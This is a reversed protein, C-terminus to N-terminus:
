ILSCTFPFAIHFYLIFKMTRLAAWGAKEKNKVKRSQMLGNLLLDYHRQNIAAEQGNCVGRQVGTKLANLHVSWKVFPNLRLTCSSKIVKMSQRRSAELRRGVGDRGACETLPHANQWVLMRSCKFSPLPQQQQQQKGSASNQLSNCNFNNLWLAPGCHWSLSGSIESLKKMGSQSIQWCTSELELRVVKAVSLSLWAYAENCMSYIIYVHESILM